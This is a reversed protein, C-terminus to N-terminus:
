EQSPEKKQMLMTIATTITETKGDRVNIKELFHLEPKCDNLVKVYVVLNEHNSVDTSEDSLLSFFPSAQVLKDVNSKLVTAIADQMSKASQHSWYTANGGVQLDKVCNIGVEDLFTLMSNYKVIAIDKKALWYDAKIATIIKHSQERIVHRQQNNFTDRM